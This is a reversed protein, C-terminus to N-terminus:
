TSLVLWRWGTIVQGQGYVSASCRCREWSNLAAKGVRRLALAECLGLWAVPLLSSVSEEAHPNEVSLSCRLGVNYKNPRAAHERLTVPMRLQLAAQFAM